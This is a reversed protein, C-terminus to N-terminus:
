LKFLMYTLNYAGYYCLSFLNRLTIPTVRTRETPPTQKATANSGTLEVIAYRLAVNNNWLEDTHKSTVHIKTKLFKFMYASDPDSPPSPTANFGDIQDKPSCPDSNMPDSAPVLQHPEETVVQKSGSTQGITM